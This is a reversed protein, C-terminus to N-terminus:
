APLAVLLARLYQYGDVGNVPCTQLLSYLNASANAGAVTTRAAQRQPGARWSLPHPVAKAKAGAGGAAAHVGVTVDGPAYHRRALPDEAEAGGTRGRQDSRARQGARPPHHLPM